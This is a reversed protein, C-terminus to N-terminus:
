NTIFHITNNIQLIGRNTAACRVGRIISPAAGL